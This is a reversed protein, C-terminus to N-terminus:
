EMEDELELETPERYNHKELVQVAAQYLEEHDAEPNQRIYELLETVSEYTPLSGMIWLVRITSMGSIFLCRTLAKEEITMEQM